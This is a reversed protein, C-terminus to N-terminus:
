HILFSVLKCCGGSVGFFVTVQAEVEVEGAVAGVDGPRFSGSAVLMDVGFGPLDEAMFCVSDVRQVCGQVGSSYWLSNCLDFSM